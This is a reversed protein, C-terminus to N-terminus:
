LTMPVEEAFPHVAIAVMSIVSFLAVGVTVMKGVVAIKVQKFGVVVM